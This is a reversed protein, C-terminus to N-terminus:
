LLVLIEREQNEKANESLLLRPIIHDKMEKGDLFIHKAETYIEQRSNAQYCIHLPVGAFTMHIGIRGEQNLQCALLKPAIVLDGYYGQVGYMQTVVTMMLWSASGTLYAYMGRGTNSFYEPLGPYIRSQNFNVCQRYLADLARYGEKVFGRRYLANAYMVAMHSFVAGNEKHGYAFGYARGMDEKMEHFDTNLRYGGIEPRYLYRDASNVIQEVQDDQATGFMLPFVQATLGMKVVGNTCGELKRSHNDYYGNYFGGDETQIWETKRIHDRIWRAMEELTDALEKLSVSEMAGDLVHQCADSYCRLVEQKQEVSNYIERRDKLLFSVEKHFMANPSQPNVQLLKRIIAAIEDLNGAYAATFTVSEGNEAAMDLGDNWDGGRLRIHNHKGVDYFATINQILIHELLSGEVVEGKRDMQKVGQEPSWQDDRQEGRFILNDKFYPASELLLSLDGTQDIYLKTTQFPWFGHDMWVRPINNRDALFQGQKEGIITANTGDMRVGGYYDQLMERVGDPEMILLALCDQWLDRWGRGGKGYDHYPLFSCGYIRRLIPQFTVWYMYNDWDPDSSEYHVNVKDTWVQKVRELAEHIQSKKGYSTLLKHRVHQINERKAIGMCIIWSKSQGPQLETKHFRMAAVVECGDACAGPKVWINEEEFRLSKPNAFSGGEGIFDLVDPCYAQATTGNEDTGYVYYTKTNRKHGREDFTLTPTVEVGGDVVSTRHLLSTVHRHDRVNDASRCYLPIAAVPTLTVPTKEGNCITVQMVEFAEQDDPVFSTITSSLPYKGSQWHMQHWMLGAELVSRDAQQTGRLAESEASCSVASWIGGNELVCWFNRSSKLNHLEEASVPQLLFTNQDLKSDGGMLPTICSKIGSKGALPFYLYSSQEPNEM